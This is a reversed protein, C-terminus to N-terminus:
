RDPDLTGAPMDRREYAEEALRKVTGGGWFLWAPDISPQPRFPNCFIDRLLGGGTRM